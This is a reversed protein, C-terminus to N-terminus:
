STEIYLPVQISIEYGSGKSIIQKCVRVLLFICKTNKFRNDTIDLREIWPLM